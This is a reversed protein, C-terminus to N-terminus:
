LDNSTLELVFFNEGSCRRPVRPSALAALRLNDTAIQPNLSGSKWAAGKAFGRGLMGLGTGSRTLLQRRTLM